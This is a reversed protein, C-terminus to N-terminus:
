LRFTQVLLLRSTASTFMKYPPPFRMIFLSVAPPLMITGSQGNSIIDLLPGLHYGTAIEAVRVPM